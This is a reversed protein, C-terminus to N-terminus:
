RAFPARLRQEIPTDEVFVLALGALGFAHIWGGITPSFLVGLAWLSLLTLEIKWM